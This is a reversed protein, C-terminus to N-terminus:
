KMSSELVKAPYLIPISPMWLYTWLIIPIDNWYITIVIDIKFHGLFLQLLKHLYQMFLWCQIFDTICFIQFDNDWKQQQADLLVFHPWNYANQSAGILKWDMQNMISRHFRCHNIFDVAHYSGGKIFTSTIRLGLM